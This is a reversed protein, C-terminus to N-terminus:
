KIYELSQFSPWFTPVGLDVGNQEKLTWSFKSQGCSAWWFDVFMSVLVACCVIVDTNNQWAGLLIVGGMEKTASSGCLRWGCVSLSENLQVNVM